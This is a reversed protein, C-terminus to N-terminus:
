GRTVSFQLWRAGTKFFRAESGDGETAGKKPDLLGVKVEWEGGVEDWLRQFSACNHRFLTRQPNTPHPYEGSDVSGAQRGMVVSGKGPKLLKVIKCMARVQNTYNFLHLFSGIHVVDVRPMLALPADDADDFVDAPALFM